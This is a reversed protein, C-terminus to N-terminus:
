GFFDLVGSKTTVFLCVFTTIKKLKPLRKEGNKQKSKVHFHFHFQFHFKYFCQRKADSICNCRFHLYDAFTNENNKHFHFYLLKGADWNIM